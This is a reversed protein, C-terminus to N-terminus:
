PVVITRLRVSKNNRLVIQTQVIQNANNSLLSLANFMIHPPLTATLHFIMTRSAGCYAPVAHLFFVMAVALLIFFKLM